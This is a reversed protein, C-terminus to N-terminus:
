AEPIVHRPKCAACSGRFWELSFRLGNSEHEEICIKERVLQCVVFLLMNKRLCNGFTLRDDDKLETM